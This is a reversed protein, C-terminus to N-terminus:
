WLRSRTLQRRTPCARVRRECNRSSSAALGGFNEGRGQAVVIPGKVQDGGVDVAAAVEEDGGEVGGTGPALGNEDIVAGEVGAQEEVVVTLDVVGAAPRELGFIDDLRLDVEGGALQQGRQARDAQSQDGVVGFARVEVLDVAPVVQHDGLAARHVQVHLGDPAALAGPSGEFGQGRFGM